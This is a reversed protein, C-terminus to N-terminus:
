YPVAGGCGIAWNSLPALGAWRGQRVAFVIDEVGYKIEDDVVEHRDQFGHVPLDFGHLIPDELRRKGGILNLAEVRKPALQELQAVRYRWKCLDAPAQLVGFHFGDVSFHLWQETVDAIMHAANLLLDVRQALHQGECKFSAQHDPLRLLSSDSPAQSCPGGNEGNRSCNSADVAHVELMHGLEFPLISVKENKPEDRNDAEGHIPLKAPTPPQSARQKWLLRKKACESAGRLSVPGFCRMISPRQHRHLHPRRLADATLAKSGM